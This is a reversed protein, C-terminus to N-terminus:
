DNLYHAEGAWQGQQQRDDAEPARHQTGQMPMHLEGQVRVWLGDARVKNQGMLAHYEGPVGGCVLQAAYSGCASGGM